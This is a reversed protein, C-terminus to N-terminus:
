NQKKKAVGKLIEKAPCEKKHRHCGKKTLTTFM